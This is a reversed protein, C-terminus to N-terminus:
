HLGRLERRLARAASGERRRAEHYSIGLEEACDRLSKGQLFRRRALRRDLSALKRLSRAVLDRTERRALRALPHEEPAIERRKEAGRRRQERQWRATENWVRRLGARILSEDSGVLARASEWAWGLADEAADIAIQRPIGARRAAGRLIRRLLGVVDPEGAALRRALETERAPNRPEPHTV